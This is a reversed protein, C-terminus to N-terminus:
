PTAGDAAPQDCRQRLREAAETWAKAAQQVQALVHPAVALEEWDPFQSQWVALDMLLCAKHALHHLRRNWLTTRDDTQTPPKSIPVTEGARTISISPSVITPTAAPEDVTDRLSTVWPFDCQPKSLRSIPTLAMRVRYNPDYSPSYPKGVANLGPPGSKKVVPNALLGLAADVTLDSLDSPNAAEIEARNRALRMYRQAAREPVGTTALWSLWQGHPVKGKAEILLEGARIAHEVGRRMAAVTGEHETRIRAALDTLSNPFAIVRATPAAQALYDEVMEAPRWNPQDAHPHNGLSRPNNRRGTM